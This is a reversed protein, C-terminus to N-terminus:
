SYIPNGSIDKWFTNNQIIQASTMENTIVIMLCVFMFKKIGSKRYMEPGGHIPTDTLLM